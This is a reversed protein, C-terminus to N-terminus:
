QQKRVEKEFFSLVGEMMWEFKPNALPLYDLEEPNETKHLVVNTKLPLCAHELQDVRMKVAAGKDGQESKINKSIIMTVGNEVHRTMFDILGELKVTKDHASHVAMVPNKIMVKSDKLIDNNENIIQGLEMGGSTSMEPYKFPDRGMGDLGSEYISAIFQLINSKSVTEKTDGLDIASSFLFLGGKIKRGKDHLLRNLSLAGGTSFGGISIRNGLHAATEVANKITEKWKSDLRKDELLEGPMKHGHAPLLPMVVNLGIRHFELAVAQLYYPSDTYGHTLVIVDETKRGHHLIRPGNGKKLKDNHFRVMRGLDFDHLDPEMNLDPTEYTISGLHDEYHSKFFDIASKLNSDM